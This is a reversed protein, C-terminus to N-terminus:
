VAELEEKYSVQNYIDLIQNIELGQAVMRLITEKAMDYKRFIELAVPLNGYVKWYGVFLSNKGKNEIFACVDAVPYELILGLEHPFDKKDEMHARYREKLESLICEICAEQYGLKLMFAKVQGNQLYRVLEQRRYLLFTVKKDTQYLVYVSIPTGSFLKIVKYKESKAVIFLNSLKNRTLLPACQLALQTNFEKQNMCKFIQILEASM